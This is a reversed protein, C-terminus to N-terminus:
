EKRINDYQNYIKFLRSFYSNMSYTEIVHMANENAYQQCIMLNKILFSIKEACDNEDQMKFMQVSKDIYLSCIEKMVNWDSVVAPLGMALAEILAIGFTDHKTAYVFGNMESLWEYVNSQEGVFHVQDLMDNSQCYDYCLQYINSIHENKAGIFYFDFPEKQQNLAKCVLLQDRAPSFSGVMCLRKRGNNKLGFNDIKLRCNEIKNFDVGNYIVHCKNDSIQTQKQYWDQEYRSVFCVDNAMRISLRCLWGNIGKMSYFGHFTNVIHLRMGMTAFYAYICDLWHQTHVVTIGEKKLLKRLRVFYRLYGFRKPSLQYLTPGAAYFEEKCSGDKRHIGIFSYSANRWNRFVDLMITEAGGRNLGGMMYAIKTAM